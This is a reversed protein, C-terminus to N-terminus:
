NIGQLTSRKKGFVNSFIKLLMDCKLHNFGDFNINENFFVKSFSIKNKYLFISLRLNIDKKM